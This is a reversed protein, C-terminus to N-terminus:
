FRLHTAGAFLLGLQSEIAFITRKLWRVPRAKRELPM